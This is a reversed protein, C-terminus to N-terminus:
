NSLKNNYVLEFSYKLDNFQSLVNKTQTSMTKTLKYLLVHIGVLDGNFCFLFKM